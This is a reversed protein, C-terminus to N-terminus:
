LASFEYFWFCILGLIQGLIPVFSRISLSIGGAGINAMNAWKYIIITLSKSHFFLYRQGRNNQFAPFFRGKLGNPRKLKKKFIGNKNEKYKVM